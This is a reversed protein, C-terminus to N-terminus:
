LKHPYFTYKRQKCSGYYIGGYNNENINYCLNSYIDLYNLTYKLNYAIKNSNYM